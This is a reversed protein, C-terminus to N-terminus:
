DKLLYLFDEVRNENFFDNLYATILLYYFIDEEKRTDYMRTVYQRFNDFLNYESKLIQFIVDPIKDINDEPWYFDTWGKENVVTNMIDNFVNLIIEKNYSLKFQRGGIKAIYNYNSQIPMSDPFSAWNCILEGQEEEALILKYFTEDSIKYIFKNFIKTPTFLLIVNEKGIINNILEQFNSSDTIIYQM